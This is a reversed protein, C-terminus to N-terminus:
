MAKKLVDLVNQATQLPHSRGTLVTVNNALADVGILMVGPLASLMPLSESTTADCLDAVIFDVDNVERVEGGEKRKVEWGEIKQLKSTLTEILISNGYLLIKQTPKPKM